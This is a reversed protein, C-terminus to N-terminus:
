SRLKLVLTRVEEAFRGLIAEVHAAPDLSADRVLPTLDMAFTLGTAADLDHSQHFTAHARRRGLAALDYRKGEMQSDFVGLLAAGLNEHGSVDLAVKDGAALWDLDRWVEGGLVKEPRQEAGLRRCAEIVRLATGVHTGHRDALNHTYVVKPRAAALLDVLDAVVDEGPPEKVGASSYDLFAVAAYDGVVAAKKQEGRRIRRMQEDSDDAYHGGRPSGAGDTTVVGTFWRDSRRFCELIGHYGIIELDDPHAGVALHTTRALAEEKPAGDPVYVEAHPNRLNM